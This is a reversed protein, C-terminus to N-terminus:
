TLNWLEMYLGAGMTFGLESPIIDAYLRGKSNIVEPVSQHYEILEALKAKYKKARELRGSKVLGVGYMIGLHPWITTGHYNKASIQTLRPVIEPASLYYDTLNAQMPYPKHINEAELRDIILKHKEPFLGLYLALVSADIGLEETGLYDRFGGNKLWFSEEIISKLRRAPMKNRIGIKEIIMLMKLVWLNVWCSSPRHITDKWDGGSRTDVLGDESMGREFNKLLKGLERRRTHAIDLEDCMYVLTPLSDARRFPIDYSNSETFCTPVFGRNNSVDIMRNAWELWKEKGLFNLSGRLALALDTTWMASGFHGEGSMLLGRKSNNILVQRAIEYSNGNFKQYANGLLRNKLIKFATLCTLRNISIKPHAIKM